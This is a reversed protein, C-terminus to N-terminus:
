KQKLTIPSETFPIIEDQFNIQWSNKVKKIEYGLNYEKSAANMRKKTSEKFTNTSLTIINKNNKKNINVIDTGYFNIKINNGEIITKTNPGNLISSNSM